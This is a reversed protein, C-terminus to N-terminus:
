PLESFHLSWDTQKEWFCKKLIFNKRARRNDKWGDRPHFERQPIICAFKESEMVESVEASSTLSTEYSKLQIGASSLHFM